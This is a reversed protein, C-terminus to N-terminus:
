YRKIPIVGYVSRGFCIVRKKCDKNTDIVELVLNELDDYDTLTGIIERGGIFKVMINKNLLTNYNDSKIIINKEKVEKTEKDKTERNMM